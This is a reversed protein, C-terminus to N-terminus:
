EKESFSFDLYDEINVETSILKQEYLFKATNKLESQDKATLGVPFNSNEWTQILLEEPLGTVSSYEKAYGPFDSKLEEVARQYQEMFIKVIEPNQATYEQNAVIVNEGAYVGTGDALLVGAGDACIKLMTPNWMAVADVQGTVLATELESVGLNILEVDEMVMGKDTLIANLFDQAISGIVIGIKKGKLGTVETIDSENQVVIGLTREGNYAIGIIDRKQGAAIGSIAPVNGMVGLDQAGVAFAENEPPGSEFETYTLGHGFPYFPVGPGDIYRSTFRDSHYPDKAPRGTSYRNYYVPCQGTSYPFSMTLRGSPSRHGTLIDRVARNGETGPMWAELRANAKGAIESVALPRGSYLM